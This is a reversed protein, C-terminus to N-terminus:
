RETIAELYHSMLGDLQTQRNNRDPLDSEMTANIRQLATDFEEQNHLIGDSILTRSDITLNEVIGLEWDRWTM